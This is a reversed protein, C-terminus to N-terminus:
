SYCAYTPRCYLLPTDTILTNHLIISVYEGQKNPIGKVGEASPKPPLYVSLTAYSLSRGTKNHGLQTALKETTAPEGFSLSFEASIQSNGISNDGCTINDADVIKKDM